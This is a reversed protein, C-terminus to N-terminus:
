PLALSLKIRETSWGEAAHHLAWELTDSL